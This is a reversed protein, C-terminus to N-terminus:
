GGVIPGCCSIEQITQCNKAAIRLVSKTPLWYVPAPCVVTRGVTALEGRPEYADRMLLANVLHTAATDTSNGFGCFIPRQKFQCTFVIRGIRRCVRALLLPHASSQCLHGGVFAADDFKRKELSQGKPLNGM